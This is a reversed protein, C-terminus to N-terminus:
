SQDLVQSNWTAALQNRARELLGCLLVVQDGRRAWEDILREIPERRITAYPCARDADVLDALVADLVSM